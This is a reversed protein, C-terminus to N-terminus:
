KLNLKVMWAKNNEKQRILELQALASKKDKWRGYSVRINGQKNKPVVFPKFGKTRLNEAIKDAHQSNKVSAAIIFYNGSNSLTATHNKEALKSTSVVEQKVAKDPTNEEKVSTNAPKVEQTKSANVEKEKQMLEFASVEEQVPEEKSNNIFFYVAGGIIILAIILIVVLGGNNKKSAEATGNPRNEAPPPTTNSKNPTPTQTMTNSKKIEQPKTGVPKVPTKTAIPTVKKTSTTKSSVSQTPKVVTKAIPKVTPKVSTPLPKVASKVTTPAPKTAPKVATQVPTITKKIPTVVPKATATAITKPRVGAKDTPQTVTPHPKAVTNVIPKVTKVQVAAAQNAPTTQVTARNQMKSMSQKAEELPDAKKMALEKERELEKQFADLRDMEEFQLHKSEDYYLWGLRDFYVRKGLALEEKCFAVFLDIKRNAEELEINEKEALKKALFSDNATLFASFMIDQKEESGRIEDASLNNGRYQRPLFAGLGPVIVRDNSKLLESVLGAVKM